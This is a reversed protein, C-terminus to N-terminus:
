KNCQCNFSDRIYRDTEGCALGLASDLEYVSYSHIVKFTDYPIFYKKSFEQFLSDAIKNNYNLTIIVISDVIKNTSKQIAYSKAITRTKRCNCDCM